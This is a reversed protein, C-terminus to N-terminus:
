EIFRIGTDRNEPPPPAAPTLFGQDRLAEVEDISDLQDEIDDLRAPVRVGFLYTLGFQREGTDPDEEALTARIAANDGEADAGDLLVQEGTSANALRVPDPRQFLAQHADALPDVEVRSPAGPNPRPLDFSAPVEIPDRAIILFEDPASSLGLQQRLGGRESSVTCGAAALAAAGIACITLPRM